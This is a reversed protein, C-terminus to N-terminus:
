RCQHSGLVPRACLGYIPPLGAVQAYSLGQPVILFSVTIGALIDDKLNRRWDYKRLWRVCPVLRSIFEIKKEKPTMDKFM